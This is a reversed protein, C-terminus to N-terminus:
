PVELPEEDGERMPEIRTGSRPEYELPRESEPETGTM